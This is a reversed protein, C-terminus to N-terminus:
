QWEILKLFSCRASFNSFHFFLFVPLLDKQLDKTKMLNTYKNKILIGGIKSDIEKEEVNLELQLLCHYM